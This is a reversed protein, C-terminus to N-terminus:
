SEVPQVIELALAEESRLRVRGDPQAHTHVGCIDACIPLERTHQDVLVALMIKAPRGFDFIENMASRITRGTNLIDDVLLILQDNVEFPLESPGVEPHLGRRSFDDRYFAINLVGLPNTNGLRQRLGEAVRDGGERIGVLHLQDLDDGLRERIQGAMQDLLTEVYVAPIQEMTTYESETNKM